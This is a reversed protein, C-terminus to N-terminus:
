LKEGDRDEEKSKFYIFTHSLGAIEAMDNRGIIVFVFAAQL